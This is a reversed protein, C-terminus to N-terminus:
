PHLACSIFGFLIGSPLHYCSHTNKIYIHVEPTFFQLGVNLALKRDAASHDGPRGAADGVFFSRDKDIYTNAHYLNHICLLIGITVNDGAYLKELEWWM